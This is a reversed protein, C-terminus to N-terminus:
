ASQAAKAAKAKEDRKKKELAAFVKDPTIPTDDFRIGVADYIANALAPIFGAM